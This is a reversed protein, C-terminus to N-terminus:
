IMILILKGQTEKTDLKVIKAQLDKDKVNKKSKSKKSAKQYIRQGKM